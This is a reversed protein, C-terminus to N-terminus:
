TLSAYIFEYLASPIMMEVGVPEVPYLRDAPPGTTGTHHDHGGDSGMGHVGSTDNKGPFLCNCYLDTLSSMIGNLFRHGREVPIGLYGHDGTIPDHDPFGCDPCFDELQVM